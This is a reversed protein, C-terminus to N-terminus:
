TGPMQVRQCWPVSGALSKVTAGLEQLSTPTPESFAAALFFSRLLAIHAGTTLDGSCPWKQYPLTPNKCAEHLKSLTVGMNLLCFILWEQFCFPHVLEKAQVYIHIDCFLRDSPGLTDHRSGCVANLHFLFRAPICCWSSFSACSIKIPFLNGAKENRVKTEVFFM